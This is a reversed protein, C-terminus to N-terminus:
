PENGAPIVGAAVPRHHRVARVSRLVGGLAPAPMPVFIMVTTLYAIVQGSRERGYVDHIITRTLVLGAASGAAQVMRAVILVEPTPALGAVVSGICFLATGTLIVPRRGYRDSLPGYVLTMVAITAFSLSILTQAAAMSMVFDRHVFPVAPTLIQTAMPGLAYAVVLAGLAAVHLRNM